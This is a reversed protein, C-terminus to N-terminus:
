RRLDFTTHNAEVNDAATSRSLNMEDLKCTVTRTMSSEQGGNMVEKCQVLTNVASNKKDNFYKRM